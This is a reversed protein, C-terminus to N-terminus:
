LNSPPLQNNEPEVKVATSQFNVGAFYCALFIAGSNILLNLVKPFTEVEEESFNMLILDIVIKLAIVYIISNMLNLNQVSAIGKYVFKFAFYTPIMTIVGILIAGTVLKLIESSTFEFILMVPWLFLGSLMGVVLSIFFLLFNVKVAFWIYVKEM